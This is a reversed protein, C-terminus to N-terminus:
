YVETLDIKEQGMNYRWTRVGTVKVKLKKCIRKAEASWGAPVYLYFTDCLESFPRWEREAEAETVTDRTEVEAVMKVVNRPHEVVVIDPFLAEGDPARVGLSPDPENVFSRLGPFEPTPFDFRAVAIDRVARDHRLDRDVKNAM